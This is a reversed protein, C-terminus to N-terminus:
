FNLYIVEMLITARCFFNERILQLGKTAKQGWYMSSNIWLTNRGYLTDLFIFFGMFNALVQFIYSWDIYKSEFFFWEYPPAKQSGKTAFVYIYMKVTYKWWVPHGLFHFIAYFPSFISIHSKLWYLQDGSCTKM